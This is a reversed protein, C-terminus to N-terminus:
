DEIYYALGTILSGTESPYHEAMYDYILSWRDSHMLNPDKMKELFGIFDIDSNHEVIFQHATAMENAYLPNRSM